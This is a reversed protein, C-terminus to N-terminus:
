KTSAPAAPPAPQSTVAAPSQTAPSQDTTKARAVAAAPQVEAVKAAAAPKPAAEAKEPPVSASSSAATPPAAAGKDAVVKAAPKAQEPTVPTGPRARQLGNVVVQDTPKIGTEVVRLDDVHIGLQVPRYEVVNKENVVLLYDGRQDSGIARDEVLLRPKPDGISAQIRVFMGPILQWGPNPFIGRRKSTGTATDVGLERYDLHGEHPFGQENALGLHLVPPNKEPDPLEHKRLMAMFRLLDNESLDFYAYIPDIAQITALQTTGSQVLNGIDVLHRGIRGTIPATIQTYKLDLEAKRVAAQAASVDAKSTEVQAAQVDLEEQTVVSNKLLPEMRRYQSQALALSATAKQETAHAADLVVQYPAQEILFLPDGAKVISGDEFQIKELYGNVRARLDVTQTPETTGVFEITDAVAREVPHAVTVTPPPPAVFKNPQRCGVIALCVMLWFVRRRSSNSM